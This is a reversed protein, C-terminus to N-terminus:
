VVWYAWYLCFPLWFLTIVGMGWMWKPKNYELDALWVMITLGLFIMGLGAAIYYAEPDKSLMPSLGNAMYTHTRAGYNLMAGGSILFFSLCIWFHRDIRLIKPKKIELYRAITKRGWFITLFFGTLTTMGYIFFFYFERATMM